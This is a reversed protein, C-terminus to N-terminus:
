KGGYWKNSGPGYKSIDTEVKMDGELHLGWSSLSKNEGLAKFLAQFMTPCM